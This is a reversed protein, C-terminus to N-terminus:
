GRNWDFRDLEERVRETAWPDSKNQALHLVSIQESTEPFAKAGPEIGLFHGAMFNWRKPLEGVKVEDRLQWIAVWLALQDRPILHQCSDVEVMNRYLSLWRAGLLELAEAKGFIVGSNWCEMSDLCSEPLSVGLSRNVLDIASGRDIQRDVFYNFRDGWLTWRDPRRLLMLLDFADELVPELQVRLNDIDERILVDSDVFLFPDFRPSAIAGIKLFRSDVWERWRPELSARSVAQTGAPEATAELKAGLDACLAELDPAMEPGTVVLIPVDANKERLSILAAALYDSYGSTSTFTVGFGTRKM